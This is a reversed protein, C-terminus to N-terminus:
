LLVKQARFPNVHKWLIFFLQHFTTLMGSDVNLKFKRTIHTRCGHEWWIGISFLKGLAVLWTDCRFRFSACIKHPFQTLSSTWYTDPQLWSVITDMQQRHCFGSSFCKSRRHAIFLRGYKRCPRRGVSYDLYEGSSFFTWIRQCILRSKCDM